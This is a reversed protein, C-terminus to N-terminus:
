VGAATRAAAEIDSRSLGIDSLERDTLISLERVSTRYRLFARIKGLLLTLM